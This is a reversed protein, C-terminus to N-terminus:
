DSADFNGVYLNHTKSGNKRTVYIQGVVHLVEDYHKPEHIPTRTEGTHSDISHTFILEQNDEKGDDFISKIEDKNM